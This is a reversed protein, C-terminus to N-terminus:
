IYSGWNKNKSKLIMTREEWNEITSEKNLEWSGSMLELSQIKFELNRTRLSYLGKYQLKLFFYNEQREIKLEWNKIRIKKNEVKM